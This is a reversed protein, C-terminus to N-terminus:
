LTGIVHGLCVNWDDGLTKNANKTFGFCENM